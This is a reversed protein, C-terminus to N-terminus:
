ISFFDKVKSAYSEDEETEEDVDIDISGEEAVPRQAHNRRLEEIENEMRQLEENQDLIVEGAIETVTKYWEEGHGSNITDHHGLEHIATGINKGTIEEWDGGLINYTVTDGEHQARTGLGEGGSIEAMQQNVGYVHSRRVVEDQVFSMFEEQGETPEIVNTNEEENRRNVWEDMEEVHNQLIGKVNFSVDSIDISHELDDKLQQARDKAYASTEPRELLLKDTPGWRREIYEEQVEEDIDYKRRSLYSTVFEQSLEEDELLDLNENILNQMLDNRYGDDITDRQEAVPTRQQINFVFPFDEEQTIPIGMESIGGEGEETRYVEVETEEVPNRKRGQDYTVTRLPIDDIVYEPNQHEITDAKREPRIGKRDIHEINMETDEPVLIDDVFEHFEELQNDDWDDSKAFIYTGEDATIDDYVEGSFEYRGEENQDVEFIATGGTTKVVTRDAAALLEKTGRGFRGRKDHVDRKDGSFVKHFHELDEVGEEYNDEVVVYNDGYGITVDIDAGTDLSNQVPEKAVEYADRGKQQTVWGHEDLGLGVDRPM